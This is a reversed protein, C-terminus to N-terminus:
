KAADISELSTVLAFTGPLSDVTVFVSGNYDIGTLHIEFATM